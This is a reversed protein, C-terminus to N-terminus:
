GCRGRKSTEDKNLLYYRYVAKYSQLVQGKVDLVSVLQCQKECEEEGTSKRCWKEKNTVLNELSSCIHMMYCASTLRLEKNFENLKAVLKLHNYFKNFSTKQKSLHHYLFLKNQIQNSNLISCVSQINLSTNESVWFLSFNVDQCSCPFVSFWVKNFNLVCKLVGRMYYIDLREKCQTVIFMATVLYFNSM